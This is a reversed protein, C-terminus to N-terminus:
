TIDMLYLQGWGSHDGTTYELNSTKDNDCPISCSGLCSHSRYRAIFTSPATVLPSSILSSRKGSGQPWLMEMMLSIFIFISM